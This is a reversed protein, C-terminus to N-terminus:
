VAGSRSAPWTAGGGRRNQLSCRWSENCPRYEPPKKRSEPEIRRMQRFLTQEEIAHIQERQERTLELAEVVEPQRFAGPGESQLAIQRLRLRQAPTLIAGMEAENARVQELVIREREAPAPANAPDGFADMWRRGARASLDAVKRRQDEDLRLDDRAAPQALLYLEGAARLVRWTPSSQRWGGPRTSCSPRAGPTM